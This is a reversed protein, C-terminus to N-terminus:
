RPTRSESPHWRIERVVLDTQPSTIGTDPGFALFAVQLGRLPHPLSFRVRAGRDTPTISEIALPDLGLTAQVEARWDRPAGTIHELVIELFAPDEVFLYLAPAVRGSALNWGLANLYLGHPREHGDRAIWTPDGQTYAAPMTRPSRPPAALAATARAATTADTPDADIRKRLKSTAVATTWLAALVGLAIATTRTSRVAWRTAHRWTVVLTAAIAPAFDLLYRSSLFPARLYYVALPLAAVVAWAALWGTAGADPGVTPDRRRRWSWAGAVVGFLILPVYPWSFTTFYYERWRPADAQGLHLDTLYFGRTSKTEPRGFMAGALEATADLWGVREFPYSFRTARINGALGQLNLRHGFETGRGFRAANTATLGAGGAVFLALGFVVARMAVRGHARAYIATAVVATAVGYVGATPRIWAVLGAAALLALYRATTPARVLIVVGGLLILSAGYAYIAAEEYVGLRGRLMALFGPLLATILLAGAGLWRPENSGGRVFARLLVFLVLSLWLGMAVRDPFTTGLVAAAASWPTQWMPVGLGWVQQVGAETWALDHALAEPASSLSLRGDLFAAVQARYAGHASYAGNPGLQKTVLLLAFALAVAVALTTGLSRGRPGLGM